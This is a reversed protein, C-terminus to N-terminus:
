GVCAQDARPCPSVSGDPNVRFTVSGKCDDGGLGLVGSRVTIGVRYVRGPRLAKAPIMERMGVPVEGYRISSLAARGGIQWVPGASADASIDFAFVELFVQEKLKGAPDEAVNFRVGAALSGAVSAAVHCQCAALVLLIGGLALWRWRRVWEGPLNRLTPM